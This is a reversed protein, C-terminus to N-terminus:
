TRDAHVLRAAFQLESRTFTRVLPPHVDLPWTLREVKLGCARALEVFDLPHLYRGLVEIGYERNSVVDLLLLLRRTGPGFAFHEKVVVARRAVRAAEGLLRAADAAHHLVDSLLVVEFAGREFPLTAGDYHHVPIRADPQLLIDVGEIRSAGTVRGVAQAVTGDGAGVDLLSETPGALDGLARGLVRTRPDKIAVRHLRGFLSTPPM